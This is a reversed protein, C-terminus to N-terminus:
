QKNSDSKTKWRRHMWFWQEPYKRVWKTLVDSYAQTVTRISADTVKPEAETEIKEAFIEFHAYKTRIAIIFILPAQSRLHFVSLGVATSSPIGLFDVFIGKHRADQDGIIGLAGGKQLFRLGDKIATKTYIVEAGNLERRKRIFDDVLRNKQKKAIGAIPWQLLGFLRAIWEFNGFHGSVLVIGKKDAIAKELLEFNHLVFHKEFNDNKLKGAQLVEFWLYTFNKYISKLLASKEVPLKNGYVLRLNALVVKKRYGVFHQLIFAIADAFIRASTFSIRSFVLYLLKILIYEIWHM